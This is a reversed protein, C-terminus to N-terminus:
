RLTRGAGPDLEQGVGLDVRENAQTIQTFFLSEQYHEMFISKDQTASIASHLPAAESVARSFTSFAESSQTSFPLSKTDWSGTCFSSPSSERSAEESGSKLGMRPNLQLLCSCGGAPPDPCGSMELFIRPSTLFLLETSGEEKKFPHPQNCDWPLTNPMWDMLELVQEAAGSLLSSHALFCRAIFLAPCLALSGVPINFM